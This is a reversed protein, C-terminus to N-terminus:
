LATFHVGVSLTFLYHYEGHLATTLMDPLACNAAVSVGIIPTVSTRVGGGLSFGASTHGEAVAEISNYSTRISMRADGFIYYLVTLTVFPSIDPHCMEWSIGMGTTILNRRTRLGGITYMTNYWSPSQTRVYDASGYLQIFSVGMNLSVPAQPLAFELTTTIGFGLDPKQGQVEEFRSAWRLLDGEFAFRYDSSPQAICFDGAMGVLITQARMPLFLFCGLAFFVLLRNM